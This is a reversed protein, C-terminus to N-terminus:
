KKEGFLSMGGSNCELAGLDPAAGSYCSHPISIILSGNERYEQLGANICPSKKKPVFSDTNLLPNVDLLNDYLKVSDSMRLLNSDGNKFFLNHTVVSQPGFMKFGGQKNDFVINNIAIIHNGGTAGMKNGTITNNYFCVKEDMKRTGSLDEKTRAGGMCGLAVKCKQFINHHISFTKGTYVDYSILQIGAARSGLIYNNRIEYHINQDRGRFLRIEIGDDHSNVIKNHEILVDSGITKGSSGIDIDIGDDRDNEMLNYAMYGGSGHELSIGDLNNKFHIHKITVRATASLTHNGNVITLGSIEIGDKKLWFLTKDGADIVTHTITSHDGTLKWGSSITLKKNIEVDNIEYHGTDLIICDGDKAHSVAESITSFDSPVKIIKCNDIVKSKLNPTKACAYLNIVLVSMCLMLSKLFLGGNQQKPSEAKM